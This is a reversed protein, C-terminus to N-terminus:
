NEELTYKAFYVMKGYRNKRGIKESKINYGDQRLSFITASLRTNGYDEFADWSTISGFDKLHRLIRDYHTEDHM